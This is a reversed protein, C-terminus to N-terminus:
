ELAIEQNKHVLDLVHNYSFNLCVNNVCDMIFNLANTNGKVNEQEFFM